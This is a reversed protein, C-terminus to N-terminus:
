KVLIVGGAYRLRNGVFAGYSFCRRDIDWGTTDVRTMACVGVDCQGILGATLRDVQAGQGLLDRM